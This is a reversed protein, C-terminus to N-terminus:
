WRVGPAPDRDSNLEGTMDEEVLSSEVLFAPSWVLPPSLAGGLEAKSVSVPAAPASPPALWDLKNSGRADFGQQHYGRFLADRGSKTRM